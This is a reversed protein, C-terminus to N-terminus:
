VGNRFRRCASRRRGRADDEADECTLLRRRRGRVDDEADECTLLVPFPASSASTM